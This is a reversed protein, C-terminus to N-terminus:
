MGNANSCPLAFCSMGAVGHLCVPLCVSLCASLCVGSRYRVFPLNPPQRFNGIYTAATTCPDPIPGVSYMTM